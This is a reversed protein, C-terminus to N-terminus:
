YVPFLGGMWPLQGTAASPNKIRVDIIIIKGCRYFRFRKHIRSKTGDNIVVAM